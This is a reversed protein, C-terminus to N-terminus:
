NRLSARGGNFVTYDFTFVIDVKDPSGKPLAGFPGATKVADTAATDAIMVGSSSKLRLGSVAGSGNLKFQVVIKKSENGRPPFWAKRIKKEMEALYNTFDAEDGDGGDGGAESGTGKGEAASDGTGTGSAPESQTPAPVLAPTPAAAVPIPPPTVEPTVVPKPAPKEIVKQPVPDVKKPEAKAQQKPKPLEPAPPEEPPKELIMDIQTIQEQPKKGAIFFATGLLVLMVTCHLFYSGGFVPALRIGRPPPFYPNNARAATLYADQAVYLEYCLFLFLFTAVAPHFISTAGMTAGFDPNYPLGMKGAVDHLFSVVAAGFCASVVLFGSVLSSFLFVLGAFNQGIYIHGAGPLISLMLATKPSKGLAANRPPQEVADSVGGDPSLTDQPETTPKDLTKM